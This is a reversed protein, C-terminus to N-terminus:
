LAPPLVSCQKLDQFPGHPALFEEWFRNIRTNGYGPVPLGTILVTKSLFVTYCFRANPHIKQNRFCELPSVSYFIKYRYVCPSSLFELCPSFKTLAFVSQGALVIFTQLLNSWESRPIRKQVAQIQTMGYNRYRPVPYLGPLWNTTCIKLSEDYRSIM